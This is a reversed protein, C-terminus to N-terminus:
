RHRNLPLSRAPIIPGHDLSLLVFVRAQGETDRTRKNSFIDRLAEPIEALCVDRLAQLPVPQVTTWYDPCCRVALNALYSNHAIKM